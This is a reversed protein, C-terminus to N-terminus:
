PKVPQANWAALLADHRSVGAGLTDHDHRRAYDKYRGVVQWEQASGRYVTCVVPWEPYAEGVAQELAGLTAGDSPDPRLHRRTEVEYIVDETEVEEADARLVLTRTGDPLIATMGRRWPFDPPLTM